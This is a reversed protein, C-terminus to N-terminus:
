TNMHMVHAMFCQCTDFLRISRTPNRTLGQNTHSSPMSPAAHSSQSCCTHEQEQSPPELNVLQAQSPSLPPPTHPAPLTSPTTPQVQSPTSQVQSPLRSSMSSPFSSCGSSRSLALPLHPFLPLVSPPSSPCCLFHHLPAACFTTFLPLMSPPNCSDFLM